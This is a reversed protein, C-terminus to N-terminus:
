TLKEAAHWHDRWEGPQDGAHDRAGIGMARRHLKALKGDGEVKGATAAPWRDSAVLPRRCGRWGIYRGRRTVPRKTTRAVVEDLSIGLSLSKGRMWCMGPLTSTRFRCDRVTSFRSRVTRGGGRIAGSWFRVSPWSTRPPTPMSSNASAALSAPSIASCRRVRSSRPRCRRSAPPTRGAAACAAEAEEVRADLGTESIAGAMAAGRGRNRAVILVQRLPRIRALAACEYAAQHGSGFIVLTAADKRALLDAAVADAAATRYANLRGAEIGVTLRGSGQDFLLIMSNHRPFGRDSNGPWYSGVKVGAIESTAAAKVTFRNQKSSGHGLVVPFNATGAECAVALAERMAAFAMEHSALAASEEEPIFLMPTGKVLWPLAAL